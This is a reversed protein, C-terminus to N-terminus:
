EKKIVSYYEVTLVVGFLKTTIISYKKKKLYAREKYGLSATFKIDELRLRRLASIVPMSMKGPKCVIKVFQTLM